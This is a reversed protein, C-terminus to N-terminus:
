VLLLRPHARDDIKQHSLLFSRLLCTKAANVLKNFVEDIETVEPIEEVTKVEVEENFTVTKSEKGVLILFYVLKWIFIFSM